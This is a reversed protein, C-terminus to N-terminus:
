NIRFYYYKFDLLKISHANRIIYKVWSSCDGFIMRCILKGEPIQFTFEANEGWIQMRFFQLCDDVAYIM